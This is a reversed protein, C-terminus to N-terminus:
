SLINLVTEFHGNGQVSVSNSVLNPESEYGASKGDGSMMVEINRGETAHMKGAISITVTALKNEPNGHYNYVYLDVSDSEQYQGFSPALAPVAAPLVADGIAKQGLWGASLSADDIILLVLQDGRVKKTKNTVTKSLKHKKNGLTTLEIQANGKSQDSFATITISMVGGRTGGAVSNVGGSCSLNFAVGPDSGGSLSGPDADFSVAVLSNATTNAEIAAKLDAWSTSIGDLAPSPVGIYLGPTGSSITSDSPPNPYSCEVSSRGEIQEVFINFGNGSTGPLKSTFTLTATGSTTYASAAVASSPAGATYSAAGGYQINSATSVLGTSTINNVLDSCNNMKLVGM